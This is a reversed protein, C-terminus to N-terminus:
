ARPDNAVDEDRKEARHQLITDCCVEIRLAQVSTVTYPLVASRIALLAADPLGSLADVVASTRDSPANM